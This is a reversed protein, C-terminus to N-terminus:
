DAQREKNYNYIQDSLWYYDFGEDESYDQNGIYEAFRIVNDVLLEGYDGWSWWYGDITFQEGTEKEFHYVPEDVTGYSFCLECTGFKAERHNSEVDILKVKM